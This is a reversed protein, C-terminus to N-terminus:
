LLVGYIESCTRIQRKRYLAEMGTQEINKLRQFTETDIIERMIPKPISIYGHVADKIITNKKWLDSKYKVEYKKEGM